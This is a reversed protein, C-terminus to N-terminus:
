VSVKVTRAEALKQYTALVIHHQIIAGPLATYLPFNISLGTKKRYVLQTSLFRTARM